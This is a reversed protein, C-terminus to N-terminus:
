EYYASVAPHSPREDVPTMFWRHVCLGIPVDALTFDAGAVHGGSTDLQAELIDLNRIWAAISARVQEPDNFAPNKRVLSIFAYRYADNLETAQWCMWQDAIARRGIDAPLLGGDHKDDLYRIIAHSEWLVLGDDIIVPVLGNPNLALFEPSKADKFGSGWAEQEFELGIEGCTWLVKRVNISSSRGLVRLM